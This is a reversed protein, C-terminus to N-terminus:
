PKTRKADPAVYSLAGVGTVKNLSILPAQEAGNDRVKEGTERKGITM